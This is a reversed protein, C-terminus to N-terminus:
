DGPSIYRYLLWLIGQCVNFGFYCSDLKSQTPQLFSLYNFSFFVPLYLARFQPLNGPPFKQDSGLHCHTSVTPRTDDTAHRTYHPAACRRLTYCFLRINLHGNKEFFASLPFPLFFMLFFSDCKTPTLYPACYFM